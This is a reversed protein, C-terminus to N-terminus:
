QCAAPYSKCISNVLPTINSATFFSAGQQKVSPSTYGWSTVGVITNRKPATGFPNSTDTTAAFGFNVMWPGGSSGGTQLSGIVTNGAMTSDVFGQSDTRMMQQGNNLSVPYGLQTVLAQKNSTYSYGGTAFGYFGTSQGAYRGSQPKLAIVAVDNDCVVGRAGSACTSTGNLYSAPALAADWDWVGFPAKGGSYAPIYQFGTYYRNAGFKSVCHAATIVIGRKIMSASCVYTSTGDKFFLKGARRYPDREPNKEYATTYPQNATGYEQSTVGGGDDEPIFKSKPVTVPALKGDGAAGDVISVKGPAASASDTLAQLQSAPAKSAQPLPKPKANAYDLKAQGGSNAFPADASQAHVLATTALLTLAAASALRFSM